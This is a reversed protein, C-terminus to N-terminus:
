PLNRVVNFFYFDILEFCIHIINEIGSRQLNTLLDFSIVGDPKPYEIKQCDKAKRTKEADIMSNKLTWPEAGKTIFCSLATYAMGGLTGLPNHFSAHTNRIERLEKGVWSNYLAPEYEVAEITEEENTVGAALVTGEEGKSTLLPYVAEAALMGSKMATHTGKIKVSNLFGASCGVLAGGPFTLKPISHYGGENM